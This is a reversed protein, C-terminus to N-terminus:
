GVASDDQQPRRRLDLLAPLVVLNCIVTFVMGATLMQGLASMGNHGSFALSGFSATTTLASYFVARATTTGLLGEHPPVRAKWRHVLHIGSDVGIGFVLPIVIVNTFDFPLRMLVMFAGTLVASLVLPSMALVVDLPDRWIVFLLLAILLAASVVAQAFSRVTVDGFEVLNVVVSTAGPAVAQVDRVFAKMQVLDELDQEPFIQVRARGDPAQMRAVLEAPLDEFDVPGTEVARRMRAIQEPLNAFLISELSTIAERANGEHEVRALFDGLHGRLKRISAALLSHKEQMWPRGFFDHLKRIAAIQEDTSLTEAPPTDGPTAPVDLLMAVDALIDLKEDQEDPVFDALSIARSVTPLERVRKAADRAAELDPEVLNIYWPATNPEGLLDNFAQVSVTDDDRMNVVNPDFRSAPLLALGGAFALGAVVRVVAPHQQFPRWWAYRFHVDAGPAIEGVRLWSSLLAPFLTVFLFVIVVMGGTAIWGLEAIGRYDTPVFVFFGIATTVGCLVLSGGIDAIAHDLADEHVRGLRRHATYSMGLHIGFDVGLGIFLVAFSISILNLHGVSAAAYSSTWLLGALLTGIVAVMVRFSRVAVYVIGAVLVFCFLSASGIDWILGIMEEYNLAPNGTVRVRVGREPVLGRTRAADYIAEIADGAGFVSGFELTPTAVLVRRTTVDMSSGRLLIEEWSTHLWPDQWLDVTAQSVRDLVLSWEKTGTDNEGLDDLALQVIEALQALSPDRELEAMVPQMRVMQDAFKELDPIPRYLLGHEEFFSGGGPAYVQTFHEPQARLVAELQEGASRSLEPTQADIVVLLASDLTPFLSKFEEYADHSPLREPILSMNDSNIGLFLAAHVTLAVTVALTGWCVLGARRDVAAVWRRLGSAIRTEIRSQTM